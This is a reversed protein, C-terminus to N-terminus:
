AGGAHLRGGIKDARKAFKASRKGLARKARKLRKAGDILTPTRELREALLLADREEGLADSLKDGLKRRRRTPWDSKLLSAAYYRDKERKRWDHRREPRASGRGRNCARRARRAIRKAGRRIQRQSAEPWVQALALLDKLAHHAGDLDIPAAALRQADLAEAAANFTRADKKGTTQATTRAAGALAARDRARALMHRAARASDNFVDSLGPACCRGVRALARARKIRLRCRHVGKPKGESADLEEIAARLEQSLAARLDFASGPSRM